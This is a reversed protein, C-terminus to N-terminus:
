GPVPKMAMQTVPLPAPESPVGTTRGSKGSAAGGAGGVTPAVM